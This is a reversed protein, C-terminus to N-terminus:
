PTVTVKVMANTWCCVEGGGGLGSFDSVIAHLIYEGPESFKATTTGQGSYPESVKGGKLVDLRPEAKEFTVSGPGRYKTWYIAVPPPVDRMPANTGSTYKADDDAWITLPLPTSISTTRPIAGTIAARPGTITPGKQEFRIVPPRNGVVAEEGFPSINYSENLRLPISTTHGNAVLTWVVKQQPTFERPVTVVFMGVNRGPLFHTPQGMDPGGPEIRNGPGIPIDLVQQTNRSFYGVLFSHTGDANNFWGEYAGTVSGGFQKKPESPLQVDQASLLVGGALAMACFGAIVFRNM